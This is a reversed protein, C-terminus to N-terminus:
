RVEPETPGYVARWGILVVIAGAGAPEWSAFSHFNEWPSVWALQLAIAQRTPPSADVFLEVGLYPAAFLPPKGLPPDFQAVAVIGGFVSVSRGFRYEAHLGLEPYARTTLDDNLDFLFYGHVSASLAFGEAGERVIQGVLGADLALVGFAAPDLTLDGDVDLWDTVGYRGGVRASPAPFTLDPTSVIPGGLSARLEGRGQGLTRALNRM